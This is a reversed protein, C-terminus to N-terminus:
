RSATVPALRPFDRRYSGVSPEVTRSERRDQVEVLEKHNDSASSISERVGQKSTTGVVFSDINEAAVALMSVLLLPILFPFSMLSITLKAVLLAVHAAGTTTQALLSPVQYVTSTLESALNHVRKTNAM